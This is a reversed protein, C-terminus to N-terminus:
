FCITSVCFDVIASLGIDNHYSAFHRVLCRYQGDRNTFGPGTLHGLVYTHAAERWAAVCQLDVEAVVLEDSNRIYASGIYWVCM